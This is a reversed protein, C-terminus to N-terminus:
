GAAGGSTHSLIHVYRLAAAAAVVLPVCAVYVLGGLGLASALTRRAEPEGDAVVLRSRTTRWLLTTGTIMLSGFIVLKVLLIAEYTAGYPIADLRDLEGPKWVLDFPTVRAMNYVGTAIVVAVLAWHLWAGWERYARRIAGHAAPSLLSPRSALALAMVIVGIIWGLASLAHLWLMTIDLADRGTIREQVAPTAVAVSTPTAGARRESISRPLDIALSTPQLKAGGVLIRARWDGQMFVALRGAYRGSGRGALPVPVLQMLHPATMNLRVAVRAGDVPGGGDADRIDVSFRAVGNQGDVRASVVPKARGARDHARVSSALAGGLAVALVLVFVPRLRRM